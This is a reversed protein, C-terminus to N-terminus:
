RLKDRIQFRFPIRVQNKVEFNVQHNVMYWVKYSVIEAWCYNRAQYYVQDCVPTM